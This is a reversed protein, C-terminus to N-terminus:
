VGLFRAAQEGYVARGVSLLEEEEFLGAGDSMAFRALELSLVKAFRVRTPASFYGKDSDTVGLLLPAAGRGLYFRLSRSLLASTAGAGEIGFVLLPAGDKDCFRGLLLALGRPLEGAALFLATPVLARRERLYSLLKEFAKPSFDGKVHETKPRVRLLFRLGKEKLALGLMRLVQTRWLAIEKPTLAGNEGALGRALALDAHYPDPREFRDFGSLDLVVARAGLAVYGELLAFVARELTSLDGISIGTKQSISGICAAFDANEISFIPDFCPLPYIAGHFAREPTPETIDVTVLSARNKLLLTSPTLDGHALRDCAMRWAVPANKLVNTDDAGLAALDAALDAALTSGVTGPLAGLWAALKEFDAANGSIEAESLGAARLARVLRPSRQWLEVPTMFARDASLEAASFGPDIAVALTKEIGNHLKKALETRTM